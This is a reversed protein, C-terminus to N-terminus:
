LQVTTSVEEVPVDQNDTGIREIADLTEMGGVLKGFVTHKSDLHQPPTTLEVTTYM